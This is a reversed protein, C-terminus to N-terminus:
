STSTRARSTRTLSVTPSSWAIAMRSSAIKRLMRQGMWEGGAGANKSMTRGSSGDSAAAVTSILCSALVLPRGSTVTM